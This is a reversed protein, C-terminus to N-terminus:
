EQHLISALFFLFINILLPDTSWIGFFAIVFLSVFALAGFLDLLFFGVNALFSKIKTWTSVKPKAEDWIEKIEKRFNINPNAELFSKLTMIKKM